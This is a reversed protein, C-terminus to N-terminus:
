RSQIRALSAVFSIIAFVVPLNAIAFWVWRKKRTAIESVDNIVSGKPLYVTMTKMISDSWTRRLPQVLLWNYSVGFTLQALILSLASKGLARWFGIGRRRPEDVKVVRLKLAMMGVTAGLLGEMLVRYFLPLFVVLLLGILATSFRFLNNTGTNQSSTGFIQAVPFIAFLAIFGPFFM